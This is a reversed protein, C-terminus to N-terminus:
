AVATKQGRTLTRQKKKNEKELEKEYKLVSEVTMDVFKQTNGGIPLNRRMYCQAVHNNKWEMAVFPVKPESIKRIFLILTEGKAMEEAFHRGTLCNHMLVGEQRLEEATEPVMICLGYARSELFKSLVSNKKLQKAIMRNIKQDDQLRKTMEGSKIQKDIREHAKYLDPPLIYYLDDMPLGTEQAMKIYDKYYVKIDHLTFSSETELNIKLMQKLLYSLFKKASVKGNCVEFIEACVDINRWRMYEDMEKTSLATSAVGTNAAATKVKKLAEELEWYSLDKKSIEKILSKPFDHFFEGPSKGKERFIRTCGIPSWLIDDTLNIMGMKVLYELYKKSSYLKMYQIIRAKKNKHGNAYRDVSCYLYPSKKLVFDTNDMYLYSEDQVERTERWYPDSMRNGMYYDPKFSYLHKEVKGNDKFLLYLRAAEEMEMTEVCGEKKLEFYLPFSFQRVCIGGKIKQIYSIPTYYVGDRAKRESLVVADKKCRPCTISYTEVMNIRTKPQIYRKCRTCYVLQKKKRSSCIIYPHNRRDARLMKEGFLRVKKPPEDSLLAFLDAMIKRKKEYVSNWDEQEEKKEKQLRQWDCIIAAPSQEYWGKEKLPQAFTNTIEKAAEPDPWIISNNGYWSDTKGLLFSYIMSNSWRDTIEDHNIWSGKGPNIFIRKVPFVGGDALSNRDYGSVVIWTDFKQISVLVKNDMKTVLWTVAINKMKKSAKLKPLALLMEKEAKKM